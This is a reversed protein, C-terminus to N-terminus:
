FYLISYNILPGKRPDVILKLDPTSIWIGHLFRVFEARCRTAWYHGNPRYWTGMRITPKCTAKVKLHFHGRPAQHRQSVGCGQPGNGDMKWGREKKKKPDINQGKWALSPRLGLFHWPLVFVVGSPFSIHFVLFLLPSNESWFFPPPSEVWFFPFHIRGKKKGSKFLLAVAFFSVVVRM